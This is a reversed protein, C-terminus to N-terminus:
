AARPAAATRSTASGQSRARSQLELVHQGPIVYGCQLCKVDLEGLLKDEFLDGGCKTCAKPYWM